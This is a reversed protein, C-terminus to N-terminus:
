RKEEERVSEDGKIDKSMRDLEELMTFRIMTFKGFLLQNGTAFADKELKNRKNFEKANINHKVIDTITLDAKPDKVNEIASIYKEALLTELLDFFKKEDRSFTKIDSVNLPNEIVNSVTRVLSKLNLNLAARKLDKLKENNVESGSLTIVLTILQKKSMMKIQEKFRQIYLYFFQAYGDLAKQTEFERKVMESEIQESTLVQEVNIIPETM